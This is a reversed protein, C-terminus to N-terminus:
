VDDDAWWPKWTATKPTFLYGSDCARCKYFETVVPAGLRPPSERRAVLDLQQRCHACQHTTIAGAPKGAQRRSSGLRPM